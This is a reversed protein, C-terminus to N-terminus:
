TWWASRARRRLPPLSFLLTLVTWGLLACDGLLRGGAIGTSSLGRVTRSSRIPGVPYACKGCMIPLDPVRDRPPPHPPPKLPEVGVQSVSVIVPAAATDMAVTDDELELEPGDDSSGQTVKVKPVRTSRLAALSAISLADLVNGGDNLVLADVFVHWCTKGTM